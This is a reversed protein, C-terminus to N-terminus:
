DLLRLGRCCKLILRLKSESGFKALPRNSNGLIPCDVKSAKVTSFRVPQGQAGYSFPPRPQLSIAGIYGLLPFQISSLIYILHFSPKYLHNDFNHDRKPVRFILHWIITHIWFPVMIKVVVWLPTSRTM